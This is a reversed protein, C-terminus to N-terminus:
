SERRWRDGRVRSWLRPPPRDLHRGAPAHPPVRRVGEVAKLAALVADHGVIPDDTAPDLMVVDPALASAAGEVDRSGSAVM